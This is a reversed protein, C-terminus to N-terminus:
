AKATLKALSHVIRPSTWLGCGGVWGRAEKFVFTRDVRSGPEFFRSISRNESRKDDATHFLCSAALCLRFEEKGRKDGNWERPGVEVLEDRECSGQARPGTDRKTGGWRGVRQKTKKDPLDM